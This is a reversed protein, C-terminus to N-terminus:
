YVHKILETSKGGGDGVTIEPFPNAECFANLGALMHKTDIHQTQAALNLCRLIYVRVKVSIANEFYSLFDQSFLNFTSKIETDIVVKQSRQSRKTSRGTSKISPAHIRPIIKM